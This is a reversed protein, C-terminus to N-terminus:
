RIGEMNSTEASTVGCSHRFYAVQNLRNSSPARIYRARTPSCEAKFSRLRQHHAGCFQKAHRWRRVCEVQLLAIRPSDPRPEALQHALRFGLSTPSVHGHTGHKQRHTVGSEENGTVRDSYAPSVIHRRQACCPIGRRM